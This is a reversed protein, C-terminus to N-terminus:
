KNRVDDPYQSKHLADLFLKTREDKISKKKAVDSALDPNTERFPAARVGFMTEPLSINSGVRKGQMVQGISIPVGPIDNQYPNKAGLLNLVGQAPGSLKNYGEARVGGLRDTKEGTQKGTDDFEYGGPRPMLQKVERLRGPLDVREPQGEVDGGTKPAKADQWSQPWTGTKGYQYAAGLGISAILLGAVGFARDELKDDKFGGKIHKAIDVFPGGVQRVLGLDWTRATLLLGLSQKVTQNWFLNDNNMEGFREEVIDQYHIRAAVIEAEDAGPHQRLWDGMLDSFAGAKITPIYHKFLPASINDATRAVVDLAAKGTGFPNMAKASAAMNKLDQGYSGKGKGAQFVPDIKFTGGSKTFHDAMDEIDLGHDFRSTYQEALKKGTRYTSSKVILPISALSKAAHAAGTFDGMRINKMLRGMDTGMQEVLITGFHYGSLALTASTYTNKLERAVEYIPAGRTAEMGKSAFNNYVTAFDPPAYLRQEGIRVAEGSNSGEPMIERAPRRTMPGDLPIWGEKPPTLSNGWILDGRTRGEELLKTTAIYRDMSNVYNSAARAPNPEALQLGGALGDEITPISRKNLSKGSGFKGMWNATFARAKAPDKWMHPFYDQIFGMSETKDLKELADRRKLMEDRIADAFGKMQPSLTTAPAVGPKSRNEVYRYFEMQEAPKMKDAAKEYDKLVTDTIASQRTAEGFNGRIDTEARKAGPGASTPSFVDRVAAAAEKARDVPSKEPIVNKMAALQESDSVGYQAKAQDRTIFTGDKKIFGSDTSNKHWDQPDGPLNHQEAIEPHSRGTLIEGNAPNKIAASELEHVSSKGADMGVKGAVGLIDGGALMLAMDRGATEPDKKGEMVEGPTKVFDILDGTIGSNINFHPKGQDDIDLPLFGGKHIIKPEAAAPADHPKFDIKPAAPAAAHPKFDIEHPPTVHAAPSFDIKPPPQKLADSEAPLPQPQFDIKPTAPAAPTFDIAM